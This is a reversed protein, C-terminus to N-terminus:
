STFCITSHSIRNSFRVYILQERRVVALVVPRPFGNDGVAQLVKEVSPITRLFSRNM